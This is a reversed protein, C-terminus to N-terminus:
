FIEVETVAPPDGSEFEPPASKVTVKDAQLEAAQIGGIFIRAFCQATEGINFIKSTNTKSASPTTWDFITLADGDTWKFSYTVGDIGSGQVGCVLAERNTIYKNTYRADDFFGNGQLTDTSANIRNLRVVVDSKKITDGITNVFDTKLKEDIVSIKAIVSKIATKVALSSEAKNYEDIIPDFSQYVSSDNSGFATLFLQSNSDESKLKAVLALLPAQNEPKALKEGIIAFSSEEAFLATRLITKMQEVKTEDSASLAIWVLTSTALNGATIKPFYEDTSKKFDANKAAFEHLSLSSTLYDIKKDSSAADFGVFTAQLAKDAFGAIQIQLQLFSELNTRLDSQQTISSISQLASQITASIDLLDPDKALITELLANVLERESESLSATILKYQTTIEPNGISSGLKNGMATRSQNEWQVQATSDCAQMFLANAALFAFGLALTSIKRKNRSKPYKSGSGAGWLTM